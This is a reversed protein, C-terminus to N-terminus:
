HAAAPAADPVATGGGTDRSGITTVDRLPLERLRFTLVLALVAFPIVVLFSAAVAEALASEVLGQLPAFEWRTMWWPILGALVCPAVVFYLASGVVASAKQM